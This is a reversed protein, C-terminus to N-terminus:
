AVEGKLLVVGATIDFVAVDHDFAQGAVFLFSQFFRLLINRFQLLDNLSNSELVFCWFRHMGCAYGFAHAPPIKNWKRSGGFKLVWVCKRRHIKPESLARDALMGEHTQSSLAVRESGFLCAARLIADRKVEIKTTEGTM